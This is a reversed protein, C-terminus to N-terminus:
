GLVRLRGEMGTSIFWGVKPRNKVLEIGWVLSSKATDVRDDGGYNLHERVKKLENLVRAEHKHQNKNRKKRLLAINM